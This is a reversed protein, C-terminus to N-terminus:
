VPEYADERREIIWQRRAGTLYGPSGLSGPWQTWAAGIANRMTDARSSPPSKLGFWSMLEQTQLGLYRISDNARAVMWCLAAAATESKARRLFIRHDASAVDHLLRRVATRHEVDFYHDCCDDCLRLVHGVREHIEEVLGTWDFPEDPLPEVTLAALREPGGVMDALLDLVYLKIDEEDLLDDEDLLDVDEPYDDDLPDLVGVAELIAEPGQRRPKGIAELYDDEYSDIADLAEGTVEQDLGLDAHAFQVFARLVIPMRRLYSQDAVIKRPYWDIMLIEIATPSWRLPDGFGYDARYFILDGVISQDDPLDLGAGYRSALFRNALAERAEESWEPRVLGIGGEPLQRAIWELLPRTEPWDESEARPITIAGREIADSIRARADAPSLAELSTHRTDAHEQWLQNFEDLGKDSVFNDKVIIGMNFDIYTVTTLDHGALRVQVVINYGDRVTDTIQEAAIIEIKNLQHMWSPLLFSRAGLDRVLRSRVLDDGSMQAMTWALAAAAPDQSTVFATLMEALTPSEPEPSRDFPDNNRPDLLDILGSALLLMQLPHDAALAAEADGLLDLGDEAHQQTSHRAPHGSRRASRKASRRKKKPV